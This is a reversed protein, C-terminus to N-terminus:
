PQYLYFSNIYKGDLFLLYYIFVDYYCFFIAIFYFMFLM